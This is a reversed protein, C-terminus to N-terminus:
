NWPGVGAVTGSGIPVFKIFSGVKTLNTGGPNASFTIQPTITGGVNIRAVGQFRIITWVATSTANIVKSAVGSVHTSSQTTTITNAAASWTSVTYEFSTVTATALAFGVATTHTTAGTNILYQGEFFYTTNGQVTLADSSAGFVSQATAVTGLPVDAQVANLIYSPLVGRGSATSNYFANGDYEFAGAEATTLNTGSTFKLPAGQNATATGAGLHLQATTAGVNIGTKTGATTNGILITNAIAGTGINIAKGNTAGTAINVTAAGAGTGVNVTQTASSSGLTIAGTAAAGGILITSSAVPQNLLIGYEGFASVFNGSTPNLIQLEGNGGSSVQNAATQTSGTRTEYRFNYQKQNATGYMAAYSFDVLQANVNNTNYFLAGNQGNRNQIFMGTEGFTDGTQSFSISSTTTTIQPTNFSNAQVINAKVTGSATLSAVSIVGGVNIVSASNGTGLNITAVGAGTGINVTQTTSSSGVTIAGTGAPAGIVITGTTQPTLAIAGTGNGGQITTVNAVNTNSGVVVTLASTNVTSNGLYLNAPGLTNSGLGLFYAGTGAAINVAQISSSNGITIAGTGASSGISITSAAATPSMVVSGGLTTSGTVSLNVTTINNSVTILTLNGLTTVNLNPITASGAVYLNGRIDENGTNTISTGFISGTTSLGVGTLTGTATIGGGSIVGSNGTLYSSTITGAVSLSNITATSTVSLNATTVNNSVTIATLNGLTTISLNPLFVSGAVYLTGLVGINGSTTIAAADVNNTVSLTAAKLNGTVEVSGTLTLGQASLTSAVSVTCAIMLMRLLTRM